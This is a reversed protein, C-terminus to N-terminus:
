ERQLEYLYAIPHKQMTSKRSESFKNRASFIGGITVPAGTLTFATPVDIHLGLTMAVFAGAGAVVTVVVDKSLLAGTRAMGLEDRLHRLDDKMEVEFQLELERADSASKVAKVAKVHNEIRDVYRHRLDRIAHGGSKEERKRFDILTRLPLDSAEIVSLTLPVVREYDAEIPPKDDVLLNTVTAYALGRDTIRARTEGACCDALISMITLGAAESLPYDANARLDGALQLERLMRWTDPLLKQPYMEYDHYYGDPASRYYFAPPLQRTALDEIENHAQKMEQGTPTHQVGFLEIAEAVDKDQYEPEYDSYPVIFELRDWLLLSTKLLNKGKIETHPYYLASRMDLEGLASTAQRKDRGPVVELLIIPNTSM